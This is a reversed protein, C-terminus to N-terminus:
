QALLKNEALVRKLQDGWFTVEGFKDVCNQLSNLKDLSRLIDNEFDSKLEALTM